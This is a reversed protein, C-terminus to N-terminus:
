QKSRLAALRWAARDIADPDSAPLAEPDGAREAAGMTRAIASSLSGALAREANDDVGRYRDPPPVIIRALIHPGPRAFQRPHKAQLAAEVAGAIAPAITARSGGGDRETEIKTVATETDSIAGPRDHIVCRFPRYTRNEETRRELEAKVKSQIYSLNAM